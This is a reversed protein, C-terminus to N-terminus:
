LVPSILREVLTIAQCLPLHGKKKVLSQYESKISSKEVGPYEYKIRERTM